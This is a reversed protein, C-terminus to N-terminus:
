KWEGVTRRSSGMPGERRWPLPRREIRARVAARRQRSSLAAEGEIRLPSHVSAEHQANVALVRRNYRWPTNLSGRVWAPFVAPASHTEGPLM